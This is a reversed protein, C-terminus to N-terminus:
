KPYTQSPGDAWQIKEFVGRLRKGKAPHISEVFSLRGALHAQFAPHGKRNQSEPGRQVCNHLIAKLRDFDARVINIRQNTVLGALYQRVGQRMIRTKRHYVAFGEELLIAAAQTAFHQIQAAFRADGSFALDDAYRTYNANASEALGQLRCDFRYACINALAPSTPAGQPLHPQGYLARAATLREMTVTSRYKLWVDDPTPTSCLGGLLDAVREPYGATRFAAQVRARSISPFFDQLDMRLVISQGVHPAVFTQISRGPIFGHAANHAPIRYLIESLIQRQMLKLHDKPSEILRINGSKKALVRYHYHRLRSNGTRRTLRKLEAFWELESPTIRFWHALDAVSELAPLNWRSAAQVPRMPHAPHLNTEVQIEKAYRRLADQFHEDALLFQVVQRHRPRAQEPFAKLYRTALPRLWRWRRGTLQRCRLVIADANREGALIARALASTFSSNSVPHPLPISWRTRGQTTLDASQATGGM